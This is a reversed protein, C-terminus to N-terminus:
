KSSDEKMNNNGPAVVYYLSSLLRLLASVREVLSEGISFGHHDFLCWEKTMM